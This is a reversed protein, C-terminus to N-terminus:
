SRGSTNQPIIALIYMPLIKRNIRFRGSIGYMALTSRIGLGSNIESTIMKLKIPTYAILKLVKSRYMNTANPIIPKRILINENGAGGNIRAKIRPPIISCAKLCVNVIEFPLIAIKRSLGIASVSIMILKNVINIGSYVPHLFKFTFSFSCVPFDRYPFFFTCFM